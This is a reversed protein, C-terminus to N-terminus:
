ADKLSLSIRKREKDVALVKVMVQQRLKVVDAPNKVFDNKLQSIHVLGDHHVGIDVFAGFSVINTVMGPLKMGPRLDEIDKIEESFTFAQRQERPDKGPCSLEKIIDQLTPLGCNETAYRKLDIAKLLDPRSMLDPVSTGLDRAMAEVIAYSEPHVGTGDLPNPGNRIRLFAASQEFAKPGLRPVKMLQQRSCFPGHQERYKVLSDALRPGLGSVYTLLRQSATNLDIGVLNVCSVVVDDLKRQLMKPEVDHQYQGIGLSEPPIKVLEALPDMLRRGISVAGRITVDQEPLEERGIESASYVSAGSEDVSTVPIKWPYRLSRLFAETERGATGDGVAIVEIGSRECIELVTEEAQGRRSAEHPYIVDSHVLQGTSDLVALKCGSKFGPDVALVNKQGLPPQLLIQRLNESFIDIAQQDAWAKASSITEKELSPLILRRYSDRIALRVQDSAENEERLFLGDLIEFAEDEPPSLHLRLLGEKEGRLIALLRHSAVDSLPESWDFYDQYKGADKERKPVVQSRLTSQAEFLERLASRAPLDESIWEAIIDRAGSLAEEGSGVEKEACVFRDAEAALDMEQQSFMKKALPELGRERADTARTRRRPRYPLYVDELVALSQAAAIKEELDASLLGRVKLSSTIADKREQLRRLQALRDRVNLIALEDLSGTAEKRYRAIFPVSAGEDLLRRAAEVQDARLSLERSIQAVILDNM